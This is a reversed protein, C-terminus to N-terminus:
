CDIITIKRSDYRKFLCASLDIENQFLNNMKRIERIRRKKALVIQIPLTSFTYM